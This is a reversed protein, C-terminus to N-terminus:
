REGKGVEKGLDGAKRTKLSGPGDESTYRIPPPGGDQELKKPPPPLPRNSKRM